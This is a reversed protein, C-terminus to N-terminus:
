MSRERTSVIRSASARPTRWRSRARDALHELPRRAVRWGITVTVSPSPVPQRSRVNKLWGHSADGDVLLPLLQRHRADRREVPPPQLERVLLDLEQTAVLGVEHVGARIVGTCGAVSPMVVRVIRSSTYAASSCSGRDGIRQGASITSPRPARRRRGRRQAVDVEGLSSAASARARSRSFNSSSNVSSSPTANRLCRTSASCRRRRACSAPPRASRAAARSSGTRASRRGAAPSPRRDALRHRPRSRHVHQELAVDSRALREHREVRREDRDPGPVLRRDHRGVSTSAPWCRRETAASSSPTPPM